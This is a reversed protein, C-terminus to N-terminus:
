PQRADMPMKSAKKSRYHQKPMRLSKKLRYLKTLMNRIMAHSMDRALHNRLVIVCGQAVIVFSQAALTTNRAIGKFVHTSMTM